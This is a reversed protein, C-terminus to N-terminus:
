IPTHVDGARDERGLVVLQAGGHSPEDLLLQRRGDVLPFRRAVEGIPHEPSAALEAEEPQVVGLAPAAGAAVERRLDDEDLLEKRLSTAVGYRPEPHRPMEINRTSVSRGPTDTDRVSFFSPIHELSVASIASSSTGTGCALRM